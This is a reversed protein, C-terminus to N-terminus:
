ALRLQQMSVRKAGGGLWQSGIEMFGFRQHFAQSPPNPPELNYECCIAAIGETRAFDILAQYLSRGIGRGAHAADVVIRDVYLFSDLRTAFWRYNDNDYAVGDRLAILFAAVQDDIRVVRSWSSLQLLQRLRAEDMPSTHQVEATNLRLIAPHDDACPADLGQM